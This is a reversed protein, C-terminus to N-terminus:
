AINTSQMKNGSSTCNMTLRSRHVRSGANSHEHLVWQQNWTWDDSVITESATANKTFQEHTPRNKLRGSFSGHQFCDTPDTPRWCWNCPGINDIQGQETCKFRALHILPSNSFLKGHLYMLYRDTTSCQSLPMSFSQNFKNLKNHSNCNLTYILRQLQCKEYLLKSPWNINLPSIISLIFILIIKNRTKSANYHVKGWKM